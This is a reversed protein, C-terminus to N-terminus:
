GRNVCRRFAPLHNKDSADRLQQMVQKIDPYASVAPILTRDYLDRNAIEAEVGLKCAEVLSEPAVPSPLAKSAYGDEPVTIGYATYLDILMAIHRGEAVIINSFPRVDGFKRLIAGYAAEALREDQLAADLASRAQATVTQSWAPMGSLSGVLLAAALIRSNTILKLM